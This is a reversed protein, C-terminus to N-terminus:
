NAALRRLWPLLAECFAEPTEDFPCHGSDPLLRLEAQPLVLRRLAAADSPPISRDEEGWILLAPGAYEGARLEIVLKQASRTAALYSAAGHRRIPGSFARVLEDTVREKRHYSALLGQRVGWENGFLGAMTEGLGPAGILDLLLRDTPTLPREYPQMGSSNVLVLAGALRGHRRAVETAVVGGMSHGVVVAPGGVVEELFNAVQDAWREKSPPGAPRASYGFGYLDLAFFSHERAVARMIPRWHEILAGYGHIFVVPLGHRPESAWFRMPGEPGKHTRETVAYRRESAATTM